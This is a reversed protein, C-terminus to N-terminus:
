PSLEVIAWLDLRPIEVTVYAGGPPGEARDIGSQPAHLVAQALPQTGFLDQRLRLRFREAPVMSDKAADNRTNVLHIVLPSGAAETRHRPVVIM